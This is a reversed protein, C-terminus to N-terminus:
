GLDLYNWPNQHQGNIRVEFHCHPGTSNGTSGVLAITDGQAVEQGVTVTFESNHAYWTEVGGGHSIKVLNGYGGAWGTFIVVGGDSAAVPSGYKGCFDVGTHYGSQRWGYNSSVAGAAFPHHFTGTPGMKKTGILIKECVPALLQYASLLRRDTEEGNVCTVEEHVFDIGCRGQQVIRETGEPLTPDELIETEYDVSRRREVKVTWRLRLTERLADALEEPPILEEPTVIRHEIELKGCVSVSEAEVPILSQRAALILQSLRERQECAGVMKGDISVVYGWQEEPEEQAAAGQPMSPLLLTMMLLLSLM